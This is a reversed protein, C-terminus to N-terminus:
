LIANFSNFYHAKLLDYLLLSDKIYNQLIALFEKVEEFFSM